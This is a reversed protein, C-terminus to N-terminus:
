LQEQAGGLGKRAEILGAQAGLAREAMDSDDITLLLRGKRVRDGDKVLVSTVTGMVRSSVISITGAKVTGAVEVADPLEEAKVGAVAAGTIERREVAKEGSSKEGCGSLSLVFLFLFLIPRKMM